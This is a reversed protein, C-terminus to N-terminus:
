VIAQYDHIVAEIRCGNPDIIFAAYYGPHYEPRPGPAGNDQGGLELCKNYWVHISQSDPAKFAVHFDKKQYDDGTKSHAEVGIWFYPKGHDGYGAVQHEETEFLMLREYGLIKLTEDYFVLSKSFDIVTFSMHDLM